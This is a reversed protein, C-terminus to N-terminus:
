VTQTETQAVGVTLTVTLWLSLWLTVTKGTEPNIETKNLGSVIKDISDRNGNM